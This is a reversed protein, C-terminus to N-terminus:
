PFLSPPLLPKCLCWPKETADIAVYLKRLELLAKRKDRGSISPFLIILNGFTDEISLNLGIHYARCKLEAFLASMAMGCIGTEFGLLITDKLLPQTGQALIRGKPLVKASFCHQIVYELIVLHSCTNGLPGIAWRSSVQECIEKDSLSTMTKFEGWTEKEEKTYSTIIANIRSKFEKLIRPPLAINRLEVLNTVNYTIGVIPIPRFPKQGKKREVVWLVLYAKSLLNMTPMTIGKDYGLRKAQSKWVTVNGMMIAHFVKCTLSLSMLDKSERMMCAIHALLETPLSLLGFQLINQSNNDDM